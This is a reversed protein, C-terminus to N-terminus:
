GQMEKLIANIETTMVEYPEDHGTWLKVQLAGQNISMGLGNLIKCGMEEAEILFQTKVPNYTADMCLPKHALEAKDIWTESTKPAMGVGSMNMVVNSEKVLKLWSVKDTFSCFTAVPGFNKNLDDVVTKAVDDIADIIYIKKAGHHALTFCVAKGAGGAGCCFFTSGPIDVGNNKFDTICGEGDTNYGKLVGGKNVVTNCAGMKRALEDVEDLYKLVEVKNPKTVAFGPCNMWRLANVVDPLHDNEIEVPFYCGDFGIAKYAANQMRPAFTFGLPKGLLPIIKTDVFIPVLPHKM